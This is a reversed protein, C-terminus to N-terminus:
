HFSPCLNVQTWLLVPIVAWTKVLNIGQTKPNKGVSCNVNINSYKSLHKQKKKKIQSHQTRTTPDLERVLDFRPGRCQSCPTKVM